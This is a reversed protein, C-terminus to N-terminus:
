RLWIPVRSRQKTHIYFNADTEMDVAAMIELIIAFRLRTIKTSLTDIESSLVTM